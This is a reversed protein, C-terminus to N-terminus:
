FLTDTKRRLRSQDLTMCLSVVAELMRPVAEPKPPGRLDLEGALGRVEFGASLTEAFAARVIPDGLDSAPPVGRQVAALHEKLAESSAPFDRELEKFPACTVDMRRGWVRVSVRRGGWNGRLWEVKGKREWTLGQAEAVQAWRTPPRRAILAWIAGTVGMTVGGSFILLAPGPDALSALATIAMGGALTVLTSIQAPGAQTWPRTPLSTSM